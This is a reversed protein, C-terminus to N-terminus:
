FLWVHLCPACTTAAGRRVLLGGLVAAIVMATAHGVPTVDLHTLGTLLYDRLAVLGVLGAAPRAIRAWLPAGPLWGYLLALTLACVVVYSPGTDQEALASDPLAGRAVRIAVIGESLLTGFVHSVAFLLAARRGGLLGDASFMGLCALALWAVPDMDPVFPSVVVAGIPHHRLNLVNTSAWERVSAQDHPSLAAVVLEAAALMCLFACATPHRRIFRLLRRAIVPWAHGILAPAPPAM